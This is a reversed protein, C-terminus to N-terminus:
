ERGVPPAYHSRLLHQRGGTLRLSTTLTAIIPPRSPTPIPVPVIITVTLEDLVSGLRNARDIRQNHEMVKVDFPTWQMM